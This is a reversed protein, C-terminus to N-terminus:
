KKSLCLLIIIIIEIRSKLVLWQLTSNWHKHQLIQCLMWAKHSLVIKNLLWGTLRWCSYLCFSYLFVFSKIYFSLKLLSLFVQLPFGGYWDPLSKQLGVTPISGPDVSNFSLFSIISCAQSSTSALVLLMVIAIRVHKYYCLGM